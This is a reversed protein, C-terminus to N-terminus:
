LSFISEGIDVERGAQLGLVFQDVCNGQSLAKREM